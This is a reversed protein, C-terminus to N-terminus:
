SGVIWTGLSSIWVFKQNIGSISNTHSVTGITTSANPYTITMNHSGSTSLNTISIWPGDSSGGNPLIITQANNPTGYVYKYFQSSTLTISSSAGDLQYSVYNIGGGDTITINTTNIATATLLGTSPNYTLPTTTNDVFLPSNSSITKSFPLFYTGATNDSTLSVSSASSANGTLSGSFTTATLLGTSPNCSLSANKNPNGYGTSSSDSFNLYYTLNASTDVTQIHGTWKQADLTNYYLGSDFSLGDSTLISANTANIATLGGSNVQTISNPIISMDVFKHSQNDFSTTM